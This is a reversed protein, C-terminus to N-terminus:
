AGGKSLFVFLCFKSKKFLGSSMLCAGSRQLSAQKSCCTRLYDGEQREEVVGEMEPLNKTLEEM